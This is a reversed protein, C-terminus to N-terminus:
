NGGMNGCGERFDVYLREVYIKMHESTQAFTSIAVMATMYRQTKLSKMPLSSFLLANHSIEMSQHKPTPKLFGEAHM